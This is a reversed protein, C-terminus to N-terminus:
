LDLIKDNYQDLINAPLSKLYVQTTKLDSHGLMSSIANLPVDNLMAQTAFSHRSVYSTLNKDINCLDALQKLKKNYVKRSWQIDKYQLMPEDRKIIPFVFASDPNSNVYYNLIQSLSDTIKIDYLKSTKRRRYTIRGDKIDKKNLFAMDSYNMGYMMYSAVFYNRANFCEHSPPLKLTIIKKLLEADLARKETPVTKIKFNAFPYHDKEVIGAKIAKNYIARITRMYVALGNRSHGKGLYRMELQTLFHYNIEHFYFDKGLIQKVADTVGKYSQATGFRGAQILEGILQQSYRFFSVNANTDVIRSKVELVSMNALQGSEDLKLIIDMADAKKKQIINNLRTVSAVGLHSKKVTRSKSDWESLQVSIGVPISTTRENHGLRLVIPYTGDKKMRRTDLSVVINSNM